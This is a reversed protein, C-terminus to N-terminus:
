FGLEAVSCGTVGTLLWTVASVGSCCLADESDVVPVSGVSGSFGAGSFLHDPPRVSSASAMVSYLFECKRNVCRNGLM